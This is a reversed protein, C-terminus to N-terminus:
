NEGLVLNTKKFFLILKKQFWARNKDSVLAQKQKLILRTKEVGQLACGTGQKQKTLFWDHGALNRHSKSGYSHDLLWLAGKSKVLM